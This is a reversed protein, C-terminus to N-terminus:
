KTSLLAVGLVGVIIQYAWDGAMLLEIGLYGNIVPWFALLLLGLGIGKSILSM